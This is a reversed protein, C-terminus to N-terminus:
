AFNIEFWHLWRDGGNTHTVKLTVRVATPAQLVGQPKCVNKTVNWSIKASWKANRGIKSSRQSSVLKKELKSETFRQPNNSGSRGGEHNLLIPYPLYKEVSGKWPSLALLPTAHLPPERKCPQWPYRRATGSTSLGRASRYPVLEWACQNTILKVSVSHTFSFPLSCSNVFGRKRM